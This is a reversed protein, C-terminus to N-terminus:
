WHCPVENPTTRILAYIETEYTATDPWWEKCWDKDATEQRFKEYTDDCSVTSTYPRTFDNKFASGDVGRCEFRVTARYLPDGLGRFGIDEWFLNKVHSGPRDMPIQLISEKWEPQSVSGKIHPIHLYDYFVLRTDMQVICFSFFGSTSVARDVRGSFLDKYNGASAKRFSQHVFVLTEAESASPTTLKEGIWDRFESSEFKGDTHVYIPAKIPERKGSPSAAKRSSLGQCIQGDKNAVILADVSIPSGIENPIPLPVTSCGALVGVAVLAFSCAFLNM